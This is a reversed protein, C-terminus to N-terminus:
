NRGSGPVFRGKRERPAFSTVNTVSVPISDMGLSRLLDKTESDVELPTESPALASVDPVYRTM